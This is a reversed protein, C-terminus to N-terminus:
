FLEINDGLDSDDAEGESSSALGALAAGTISAHVKRESHMTYRTSLEALDIEDTEPAIERVNTIIRELEANISEAEASVTTHVTIGGTTGEIDDSLEQVAADNAALTSMVGDNMARISEVLGTLSAAMTETDLEGSFSGASTSTSLGETVRSIERLTGTVAATQACADVSLRQIAEALVGLAAGEEGTLAAKIQSNLAILEIEEGIAEIDIVFTSIEAVTVAVSAVAEALSHNAAASKALLGVVPSLSREIEVFLSDGAGDAVKIMERTQWAIGRSKDALGQLNEVIGCVATTLCDRAHLLQASQLRCVGYVDGALEQDSGRSPVIRQELDALAEQVHEIQQRVIDHSQMSTVVESINRSVEGSASAIASAVEACKRHVGTIMELSSRTKDLVQRVDEREIAEIDNMRALTERIKSSLAVNEGMIRSSKENIQVALNKVDDALNHFGTGIKGLRASEIKTSIGLVHLVKMIKKFGALPEDVGAIMQLTNRLTQSSQEAEGELIGLFDSMRDIICGLERIAERIEAGGMEDTVAASASEIQTTRTHFDLLRSGIDLFENETTGALVGLREQQVRLTAPLEQFYTSGIMDAEVQPTEAESHPQAEPKHPFLTM